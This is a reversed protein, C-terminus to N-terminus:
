PLLCHLLLLVVPRPLQGARHPPCCAPTAPLLQLPHLLLVVVVLLLLLLLHASNCSQVQRM